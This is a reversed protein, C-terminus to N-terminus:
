VYSEGCCEGFNVPNAAVLWPLLRPAVGKTRDAIRLAVVLYSQVSKGMGRDSSYESQLSIDLPCVLLHCPKESFPVEDLRHWSCDVVALGKAEILERDERSVCAQPHMGDTQLHSATRYSM